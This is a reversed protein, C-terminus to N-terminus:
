RDSGSFRVYLAGPGVRGEAWSVAPRSYARAVLKLVLSRGARVLRWVTLDRSRSVDGPAAPSVEPPPMVPVPPSPSNVGAVGAVPAVPSSTVPAVLSLVPAAPAVPAVPLAAPPNGPAAATPAVQM